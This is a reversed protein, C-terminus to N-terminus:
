YRRANRSQAKKIELEVQKQQIQKTIVARAGILNPIHQRNHPQQEFSQIKVDIDVLENSLTNIERKLQVQSVSGEAMIILTFTVLKHSFERM